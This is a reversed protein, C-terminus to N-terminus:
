YFDKYGTLQATYTAKQKDPASIALSTLIAKGSVIAAGQTRNNVGSANAITWLVPTGANYITELDTLGQALVASTVTEGSRVLATTSIDYSYETPEQIVWGGATDKTTADELSVSCHFSLQTAAGIVKSPTTTGDSSLYLRVYQGKTYAGTEIATTNITGNAIEGSGTFQLQKVSNERNNFNATFDTLFAQGTRGFTAHLASQNDRTGTEDWALTFLTGSAFESLLSPLDSVDLSEVQVNWGKSVVSPASFNGTIDKHSSNEVNNTLNITCNTSMGIVTWDEGDFTLIRLNQGKLTAM